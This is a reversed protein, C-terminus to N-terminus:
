LWLLFSSMRRLAVITIGASCSGVGASVPSYRARSWCGERQDFSVVLGRVRPRDFWLAPPPGPWVPVEGRENDASVGHAVSM